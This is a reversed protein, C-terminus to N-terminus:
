KNVSKSPMLSIEFHTARNRIRDYTMTTRFDTCDCSENEEVDQDDACIKCAKFVVQIKASYETKGFRLRDEYYSDVIYKEGHRKNYDKLACRIVKWAIETDEFNFRNCRQSQCLYILCFLTTSLLLVKM